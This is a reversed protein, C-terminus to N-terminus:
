HKSPGNKIAKYERYSQEAMNIKFLEPRYEGISYYVGDEFGHCYVIKEEFDLKKASSNRSLIVGLCLGAVFNFIAFFIFVFFMTNNGTECLRLNSM